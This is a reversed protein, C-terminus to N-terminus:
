MVCTLGQLLVFLCKKWSNTQGLVLFPLLAVVLRQQHWAAARFMPLSASEATKCSGKAQPCLCRVCVLEAEDQVAATCKSSMSDSAQISAEGICQRVSNQESSASRGGKQQWRQQQVGQIRLQRADKAKDTGHDGIKAEVDGVPPDHKVDNHASGEDEDVHQEACEVALHKRGALM